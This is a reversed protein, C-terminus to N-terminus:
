INFILYPIKVFLRRKRIYSSHCILHVPPLLKLMFQVLSFTFLSLYIFVVLSGTTQVM